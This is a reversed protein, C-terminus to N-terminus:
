EIKGDPAHQEKFAETEINQLYRETVSVSSHGLARSLAYVGMGGGISADCLTVRYYDRGAADTYVTEQIGANKAATYVMDGLTDTTTEGSKRSVILRNPKGAFAFIHRRSDM